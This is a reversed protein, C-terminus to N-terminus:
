KRKHRIGAHAAVNTHQVLNCATQSFKEHVRQSYLPLTTPTSQRRQGKRTAGQLNADRDKTGATAGQAPCGAGCLQLAAIPFRDAEVAPLLHELQPSARGISHPWFTRLRRM